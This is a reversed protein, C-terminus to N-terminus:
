PAVEQWNGSPSTTPCTCSKNYGDCAGDDTGNVLDCNKELVPKIGDFCFAETDNDCNSPDLDCPIGECIYTPTGITVKLIDAISWAGDNDQVRFCVSYITDDLLSFNTTTKTTYSATFLMPDLATCGESYTDSNSIFWRYAIISGDPDDLTDTGAGEFKTSFTAPYFLTNTIPHIPKTINATPPQNPAPPAEVRIRVIETTYAGVSNYCTLYYTYREIVSPQVSTIYRGAFPQSGSWNGGGTIPSTSAECYTVPYTATGSAEYTFQAISGLVLDANTNREPDKENRSDMPDSIYFTLTPGPVCVSGIRVYGTRCKLQCKTSTDTDSYVWNLNRTLDDDEESDWAVTGAPKPEICDYTPIIPCAPCSGGCDIGTETGNQIGDSCTPTASSSIDRRCNFRILKSTITSYIPDAVYSDACVTKFGDTSAVGTFNRSGDDCYYASTGGTGDSHDYENCSGAGVITSSPDLGVETCYFGVLQKSKIGDVKGAVDGITCIPNVGDTGAIGNTGLFVWPGDCYWSGDAQQHENCFGYGWTYYASVSNFHLLLGFAVLFLLIM